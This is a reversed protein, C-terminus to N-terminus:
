QYRPKGCNGSSREVVATQAWITKAYFGDQNGGEDHVSILKRVESKAGNPILTAGSM